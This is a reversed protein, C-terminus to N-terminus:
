LAGEGFIIINWMLLVILLVGLPFIRIVLWGVLWLDLQPGETQM